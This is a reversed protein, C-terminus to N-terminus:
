ASAAGALEQAKPVCDELTSDLKQAVSAAWIQDVRGFGRQYDSGLVMVGENGLPQVLISQMNIPLYSTFEVAGPYRALNALNNPEGSTAAKNCLNGMQAQGPRAKDSCSGLHAVCTGRYLVVLARCRTCSRTAEWAWSVEQRADVPLKDSYYEVDKGLPEEQTLPRPKISLWQLGVLLLVACLAVGILEDRSQAQVTGSQTLLRNLVIGAVGTGGAVLPLARLRQENRAVWDFEEDAPVENLQAKCRIQRASKRASHDAKLPSSLQPSPYTCTAVACPVALSHRCSTQLSQLACSWLNHAGLQASM